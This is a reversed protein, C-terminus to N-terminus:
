YLEKLVSIQDLFLNLSGGSRQIPTGLLQVKKRAERNRFFNVYPCKATDHVSQHVELRRELGAFFQSLDVSRKSIGRAAFIRLLHKGKHLLHELSVWGFPDVNPFHPADNVRNLNSNHSFSECSVLWLHHCMWHHFTCAINREVVSGLQHSRM